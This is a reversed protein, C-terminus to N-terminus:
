KEKHLEMNYAYFPNMQNKSFITKIEGDKKIDFQFEKLVLDFFSWLEVDKEGRIKKWGDTYEKLYKEDM